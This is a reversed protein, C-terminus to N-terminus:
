AMKILCKQLPTRAKLSNLKKYFAWFQAMELGNSALHNHSKRFTILISFKIYILFTLMELITTYLTTNYSKKHTGKPDREHLTNVKNSSTNWRKLGKEQLAVKPSGKSVLNSKKDDNVRM